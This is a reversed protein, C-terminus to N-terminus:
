KGMPAVMLEGGPFGAMVNTGLSEIKSGDLNALYVEITEEDPPSSCLCNGTSFVVQKGDPSFADPGILARKGKTFGPLFEAVSGDAPNGEFWTVDVNLGNEVAFLVTNSPTWRPPGAYPHAEKSLRKVRTMDTSAVWVGVEEPKGVAIITAQWQKDPSAPGTKLRELVLLPLDAPMDDDPQDAVGGGTDGASPNGGDDTGAGPKAKGKFWTCGSLALAAVLMLVLLCRGYRIM